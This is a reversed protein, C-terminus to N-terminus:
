QSTKKQDLACDSETAELYCHEMIHGESLLLSEIARWWKPGSTLYPGQETLLIQATSIPNRVCVNSNTSTEFEM